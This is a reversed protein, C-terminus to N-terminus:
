IQKSVEIIFPLTLALLTGATDSFQAQATWDGADDFTNSSDPTVTFTGGSASTWAGTLSRHTQFDESVASLVVTAYASLDKAAGNQDLVALSLAVGIQGVVAGQYKQIILESSM